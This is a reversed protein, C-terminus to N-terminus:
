NKGSDSVVYSFYSDSTARHRNSVNVEVPGSIVRDSQGTECVIKKAAVYNVDYETASCKKHAVTVGTRIDDFIKGLNEGTITVVTGGERPGTKPHFQQWSFVCTMFDRM